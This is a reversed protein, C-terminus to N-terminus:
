SSTISASNSTPRSMAWAMAGDPCISSSGATRCNSVVHAVAQRAPQGVLLPPESKLRQDIRLDVGKGQGAAENEDGPRQQVQARRLNVFQGEHEPVLHGVHNASM